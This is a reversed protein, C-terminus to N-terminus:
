STKGEGALGEEHPTSVYGLRKLLEPTVETHRRDEEDVQTRCARCSRGDLAVIQDSRECYVSHV